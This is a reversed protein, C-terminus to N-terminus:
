QLKCLPVSIHMVHELSSVRYDVIYFLSYRGDFAKRLYSLVADPRKLMLTLLVDSDSVLFDWTLSATM